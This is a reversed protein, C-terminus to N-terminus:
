IPTGRNRGPKQLLRHDQRRQHCQEIFPLTESPYTAFQEFEDTSIAYYEDYDVLGNSVPFSLYFTGQSKEKGVSFRHEQFEFFEEFEMPPYRNEREDGPAEQSDSTAPSETSPPMGPVISAKGLIQTFDSLSVALDGRDLHAPDANGGLPLFPTYFFAEYLDPRGLRAVGEAYDGRQLWTDLYHADELFSFLSDFPPAINRIDGVRYLVHRIVGGPEDTPQWVFLDGMGSALFPVAGKTDTFWEPLWNIYHAPDIIRIFGDDGIFGTGWTRWLDLIEPPFGPWAAFAEVTQEQVQAMPEFREFMIM